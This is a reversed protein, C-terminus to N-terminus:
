ARSEAPTCLLCAQGWASTFTTCAHVHTTGNAVWFKIVPESVQFPTRACCRPITVAHGYRVPREHQGRPMLSESRWLTTKAMLAYCRADNSAAASGHESRMREAAQRCRQTSTREVCGDAPVRELDASGGEGKCENQVSGSGSCRTSPPMLQCCTQGGCTATLLMDTAAGGCSASSTSRPSMCSPSLGYTM